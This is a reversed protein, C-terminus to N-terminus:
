AYRRTNEGKRWRVDKGWKRWLLVREMEGREVVVVRRELDGEWKRREGGGGGGGGWAM